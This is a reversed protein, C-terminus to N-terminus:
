APDPPLGLTERGPADDATAEDGPGTAHRAAEDDAATPAAGPAADAPELGLLAAGAEEGDVQGDGDLSLIEAEDVTVGAELLEASSRELGSAREVADDIRGIAFSVGPPLAATVEIQSIRYPSGKRRLDANTAEQLATAKIILDALIGPDIREVVTRAKRGAVKAAGGAAKAAEGAQRGASALGTRMREQTAPDHAKASVADAARSTAGAADRAVVAAKERARQLFGM